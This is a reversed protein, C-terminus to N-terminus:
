EGAGPEWVRVEPSDLSALPVTVAGGRRAGVRQRAARYADVLRRAPETYRWYRSGWTASLQEAQELLAAELAEIYDDRQSAAAELVAVRGDGAALARGGASAGEGARDNGSYTLADVLGQEALAGLGDVGPLPSFAL